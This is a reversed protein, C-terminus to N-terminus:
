ASCAASSRLFVIISANRSVKGPAGTLPRTLDCTPMLQPSAFGHIPSHAVLLLIVIFLLLGASFRGILGDGNAIPIASSRISRRRRHRRVLPVVNRDLQSRHQRRLRADPKVPSLLGATLPVYVREFLKLFFLCISYRELRYRRSHLLKEVLGKARLRSLDCRLSPTAIPLRARRRSRPPTRCDHLQQRARM